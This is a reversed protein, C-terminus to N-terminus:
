LEIFVYDGKVEYSKIHSYLFPTGQYEWGDKFFYFRHWKYIKRLENITM